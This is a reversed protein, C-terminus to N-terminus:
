DVQGKYTLSAARHFRFRLQGRFGWARVRQPRLDSPLWCFCRLLSSAGVDMHAGEQVGGRLVGPFVSVGSVMHYHTQSERGRGQGLGEGMDRGVTRPQSSLSVM